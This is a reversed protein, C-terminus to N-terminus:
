PDQDAAGLQLGRHEGPAGVGAGGVQGGGDLGWYPAACSEEGDWSSHTLQLELLTRKSKWEHFTQIISWIFIYIWCLILTNRTKMRCNRQDNKKGARIDILMKMTDDLILKVLLYWLYLLNNISLTSQGVVAPRQLATCRITNLAFISLKVEWWWTWDHISDRTRKIVENIPRPHLIWSLISLHFIINSAQQIACFQM